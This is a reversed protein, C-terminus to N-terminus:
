EDTQKSGRLLLLRLLREREGSVDELEDPHPSVFTNGLWGLSCTRPTGEGLLRGLHWVVEVPEM